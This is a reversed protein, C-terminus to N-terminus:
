IHEDDFVLELEESDKQTVSYTGKRYVIMEREAGEEIIKKAIETRKEKESENNFYLFLEEGKDGMKLLFANHEVFVLDEYAHTVELGTSKVIEVVRTIPRYPVTM